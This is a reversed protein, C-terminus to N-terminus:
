VARESFRFNIDVCGNKYMPLLPDANKVNWIIIDDM